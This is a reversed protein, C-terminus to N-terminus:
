QALFDVIDLPTDRCPMYTLPFQQLFQLVDVLQSRRVLLPETNGGLTGDVEHDERERLLEVQM